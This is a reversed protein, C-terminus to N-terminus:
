GARTPAASARPAHQQPRLWRHVRVGLGVLLVGFAIAYTGIMWAVALAGAAPRALMLVGFVVSLIGAIGLLWEHAIVKRLTVAAFIEAIGTLIAWAAIVSLLVLGTIGPWMFTLVGATISVLGEFLLWGWSAGARGSSVALAVNFGGDLLAYVGWLTVLAFLSTGPSILTLAGFLMAAVGRVVLVWWREALGEVLASWDVTDTTEM